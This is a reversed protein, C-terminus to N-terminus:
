RELRSIVMFNMNMHDGLDKWRDCGKVVTQLRACLIFGVGFPFACM